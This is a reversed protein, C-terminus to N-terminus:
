LCVAAADLNRLHRGFHGHGAAHAEASPSPSNCFAGAPARAGGCGSCAAYHHIAIAIYGDIKNVIVVSSTTLPLQPSCWCPGLMGVGKVHWVSMDTM